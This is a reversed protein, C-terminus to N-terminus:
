IYKKDSMSPTQISFNRSKEITLLIYPGLAAPPSSWTAPDPTPPDTDPPGTSINFKVEALGYWGPEGGWHTVASILVYRASNGAFDPGQFGSYSDLGTAENFQTNILQTWSSGNLSYDIYVNKYAASPVAARM